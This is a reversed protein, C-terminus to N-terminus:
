SSAKQLTMKLVVYQMAGHQQCHAAARELDITSCFRQHRNGGKIRRADEVFLLGRNKQTKCIGSTTSKLVFVKLLGEFPMCALLLILRTNIDKNFLYPVSSCLFQGFSYQCPFLESNFGFTRIRLEDSDRCPQEENQENKQKIVQM